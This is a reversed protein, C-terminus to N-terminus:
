ILRSTEENVKGADVLVLYEDGLKVEVTVRFDKGLKLLDSAQASGKYHTPYTVFQLKAAKAALKFEAGFAPATIVCRMAGEALMGRKKPMLAQGWEQFKAREAPKLARNAVDWLAGVIETETLDAKNLEVKRAANVFSGFIAFEDRNKSAKVSLEAVARKTFRQGFTEGPVLRSSLLASASDHAKAEAELRSKRAAPSEKKSLGPKDPSPERATSATAATAAIPAALEPVAARLAAASTSNIQAEIEHAVGPDPLASDSTASNPALSAGLEPVAAIHSPSSKSNIQAGIEHAVSPGPPTSDMSADTKEDRTM